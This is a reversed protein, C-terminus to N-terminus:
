EMDETLYEEKTFQEGMMAYFAKAERCIEEPPTKDTLATEMLGRTVYQMSRVLLAHDVNDCIRGYDVREMIEEM